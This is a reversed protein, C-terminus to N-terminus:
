EAVSVRIEFIDVAKGGNSFDSNIAITGGAGPQGAPVDIDFLYDAKTAGVLYRKRGCDGLEGFNCAVSIETDRGEEAKAVVDFTAKKGAIQELVGQGVDFIIASGSTGSQIRIFKGNPEDIVDAKTDGPASVTAPDNPTFVSVWQRNADATSPAGPPDEAGPEFDESEAAPGEIGTVEQSPPNIIGARFAWWIGIAALCLLTLGLFIAAFPRRRERRALRRNGEAATLGGVMTTDRQPPLEPETELMIDPVVPTPGAGTEVRIEPAVPIPGSPAPTEPRMQIHGTFTPEPAFADPERPAPPDISVAPTEEAAVTEDPAIATDDAELPPLAPLYEQEIETIKAQLAKRRRIATEVTMGTNAQLARELAAFAQRYVRERFAADEGNGKELASRIAKEIADM